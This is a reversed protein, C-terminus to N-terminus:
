RTTLDRSTPSPRLSTDHYEIMYSFEFLIALLNADGEACKIHQM